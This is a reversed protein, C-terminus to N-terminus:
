PLSRSPTCSKFQRHVRFSHVAVIFIPFHQAFHHSITRFAFLIRLSSPTPPLPFHICSNHLLSSQLTHVFAGTVVWGAGYLLSWGGSLEENQRMVFVCVSVLRFLPSLDRATM